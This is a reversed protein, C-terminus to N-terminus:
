LLKEVRVPRKDLFKGLEFAERSILVVNGERHPKGARCHASRLGGLWRRADALHLLDGEEAKMRDM